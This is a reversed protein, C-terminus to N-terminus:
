PRRMYIHIYAASSRSSRDWTQLLLYICKLLITTTYVGLSQTPKNQKQRCRTSEGIYKPTYIKSDCKYTVMEGVWPDNRNHRVWTCVNMQTLTNILFHRLIYSHDENCLRTSQSAYKSSSSLSLSLSLSLPPPLLMPRLLLLLLLLVMILKYHTTM